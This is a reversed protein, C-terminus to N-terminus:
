GKGKRSKGKRRKRLEYDLIHQLWTIAARIQRVGILVNVDIGDLGECTICPYTMKDSELYILDFKQTQPRRASRKSRKRKVPM